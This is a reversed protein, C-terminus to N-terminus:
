ERSLILGGGGVAVMRGGGWAIDALAYPARCATWALGDLSSIVLDAQGVAVFRSGGYVVANLPPVQRPEARVIWDLDAVPQTIETALGCGPQDRSVLSCDWQKAGVPVLQVALM